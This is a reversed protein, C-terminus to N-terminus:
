QVNYGNGGYPQLKELWEAELESLAKKENFYPNTEDKELTELRDFSFSGKGYQNWEEQLGKSPVFTNGELMFSIGNSTKFNLTSGVFVKGNTHNKIQYVGGDVSMEKYAQKLQKKRDM